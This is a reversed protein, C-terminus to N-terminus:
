LLQIYFLVETVKWLIWETHQFYEQKNGEYIEYNFVIPLNPNVDM